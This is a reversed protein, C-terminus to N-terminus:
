LPCEFAESLAGLWVKVAVAGGDPIGLVRDGIYSSRGLRPLMSATAQAGVAAAQACAHVAEQATMGSAVSKALANAAPLLADVMTRDGPQAGGLEMVATVGAAFAASWDSALPTDQTGLQRAARLLATAYFPGSSGGVARRLANGIAILASSPSGWAGDPLEIIARAARAMSLGLDGDGARTDLETLEAEAALLAMAAASAIRRIAVGSGTIEAPASIVSSLAPRGPHTPHQNLHGSGPWAPADTRADLLQLLEDDLALLSLSCGPMDLASLLTGRWARAVDIGRVRLQTLAGRLVIDLEMVPTGGLGNILLAVQQDPEIPLDELIMELMITILEDAPKM